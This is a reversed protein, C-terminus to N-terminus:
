LVVCEMGFMEYFTCGLPTMTLIGAVALLCLCLVALIILVIVWTPFRKKNVPPNYPYEEYYDVQAPPPPPAVPQRPPQYAPQVQPYQPAVPNQYVPQAPIPQQPIGSSSPVTAPSVANANAVTRPESILEFVLVIKEGLTIVEGPQLTYGGSIRQGNITIGNTSGLDEIVYYAGQMFVRAHKRSVEPDKIVVDASSDRGIVMESKILPFSMGVNPGSREVLRYNPVM